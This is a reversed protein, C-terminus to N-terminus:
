HDEQGYSYIHGSEILGLPIDKALDMYVASWSLGVGFGCMLVRAGDGLQVGNACMTLPISAGSTNGFDQYSILIKEEPIELLDRINDLILKQAQHFVYYDVDHDAIHVDNMFQRVSDVVTNIAFSFVADGNMRSLHGYEKYIDMCGSGDTYQMGYMRNGNAKEMATASIGSGLLLWDTLYKEWEGTEKWEPNYKRIDGVILLARSGFNQLLGAVTQLGTTYGSCGLNIDFVLMDKKFPFAKHVFMSTAPLLMDQAQTILILIDVSDASWLTKQLLVRVADIALDSTKQGNMVVRRREIGTYRIHKKLRKEGMIRAYEAQNCEDEYSPVATVVGRIAINDFLTMM